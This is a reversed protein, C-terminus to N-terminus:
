LRDADSVIDQLRHCMMTASTVARLRLEANGNRKRNMKCLSVTCDMPRAPSEKASRTVSKTIKCPVRQLGSSHGANTQPQAVVQTRPGQVKRRHVRNQVEVYVAHSTAARAPCSLNRGWRGCVHDPAMLVAPPPACWWWGAEMKRSIARPCRIFSVQQSKRERNNSAGVNVRERKKKKQSSTAHRGRVSFKDKFQWRGLHVCGGCFGQPHRSQLVFPTKQATTSTAPLNGNDKHHSPSTPLLPLDKEGM